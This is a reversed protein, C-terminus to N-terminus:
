GVGFCRLMADNTIRMAHLECAQEWGDKEEGVCEVRLGLIAWCTTPKMVSKSTLSSAMPLAFGDHDADVGGDADDVDGM